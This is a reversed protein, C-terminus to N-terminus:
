KGHVMRHHGADTRPRITDKIEDFVGKMHLAYAITIAGNVLAYLGIVWIFAMGGVAPNSWIYIGAIIGLAGSIGMLWRHDGKGSYFLSAVVDFIGRIVFVTGVLVIFTAITMMPSRVLYVGIGLLVLGLVLSLFWSSNKGISSLGHVLDILGVVVAYVAITIALAALTLGPMFLAVVGFAITAVGQLIFLWWLEEVYEKITAVM